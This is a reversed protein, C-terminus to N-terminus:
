RTERHEFRWELNPSLDVCSDIFSNPDSGACALRFPPM